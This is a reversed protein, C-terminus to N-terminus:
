STHRPQLSDWAPGDLSKQNFSKRERVPIEGGHTNSKSQSKMEPLSHIFQKIAFFLRESEFIQRVIKRTLLEGPRACFRGRAVSKALNLRGGPLLSHRERLM